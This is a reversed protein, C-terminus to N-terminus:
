RSLGPRGLLIKPFPVPVRLWPTPVVPWFPPMPQLPATSFVAPHPHLASVRGTDEFTMLIDAVMAYDEVTYTTQGSPNNTFITGPNSIVTAAANKTKVYVRIAQYYGVDTLDNSMEDFFM